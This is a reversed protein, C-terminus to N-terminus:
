RKKLRKVNSRVRKALPRMMASGVFRASDGFASWGPPWFLSPMTMSSQSAALGMAMWSEQMAAIKETVMRTTEPRDFPSRLTEAMLVPMRAHVVLPSLMLDAVDENLRTM